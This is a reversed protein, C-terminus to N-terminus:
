NGMLYADELSEGEKLLAFTMHVTRVRDAVEFYRKINTQRHMTFTSGGSEEDELLM